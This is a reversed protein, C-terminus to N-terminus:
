GPVQHLVFALHHQLGTRIWTEPNGPTERGEAVRQMWEDGRSFASGRFWKERTMVDCIVPMAPDEERRYVVWDRDETYRLNPMPTTGGTPPVAYVTAYDGYIPKAFGAAELRRCVQEWVLYESRALRHLINPELKGISAPFAGGLITVTRWSRGARLELLLPEVLDVCDHVTTTGIFGLDIILDTENPSGGSQRLALLAADKRLPITGIGDRDNARRLRLAFGTGFRQNWSRAAVGHQKSQGAWLVPVLDRKISDALSDSCKALTSVGQQQDLRGVDFMARQIGRWFDPMLVENILGHQKELHQDLTLAPRVRRVGTLESISVRAPAIPVVTLLPYLRERTKGVLSRLALAEASKLM